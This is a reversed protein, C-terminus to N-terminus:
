NDTPNILQLCSLPTLDSQQMFVNLQPLVARVKPHIDHFLLVGRRWLLMLTIVRDRMAEASLRANWDQSDINWLLVRGSQEDIYAVQERTRQGYPPRFWNKGALEPQIQGTLQRTDALSKEWGALKQHPVHSYGHSALCQGRYLDGLAKLGQTKLRDSLREGLAFFFAEQGNARLLEALKDSESNRSPGDDFTLVFQRDALEFGNQEREDLKAIESTVGPFLAALRVQEYLYTSYFGLAASRWRDEASVISVKNALLALTQWDGASPCEETTVCPLSAAAYNDVLRLRTESLWREVGDTNPVKIGTFAQISAEDTLPNSDIVRVFALIEQRSARDFRKPSDIPESWLTRDYSAIKTPGSALSIAPLAVLLVSAIWTKVM